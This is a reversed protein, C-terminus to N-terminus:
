TWEIRPCHKNKWAKFMTITMHPRPEKKPKPPKPTSRNRIKNILKGIGLAFCVMFTVYGVMFAIIFLTKQWDNYLSVSLGVIILALVIGVGVKGRSNEPIISRIGKFIGVPICILVALITGWFYPCGNTNDLSYGRGYIFDNLKVHWSTSSLKM